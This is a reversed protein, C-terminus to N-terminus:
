NDSFEIPENVPTTFIKDKPTDTYLHATTDIFEKAEKLSSFVMDYGSKTQLGCDKVSDWLTYEGFHLMGLGVFYFGFGAGMM